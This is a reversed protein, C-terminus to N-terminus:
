SEFFFDDFDGVLIECLGEVALRSIEWRPLAAVWDNKPFRLVRLVRLLVDRKAPKQTNLTNQPKLLRRPFVPKRPTSLTACESNAAPRYILEWGAEDM